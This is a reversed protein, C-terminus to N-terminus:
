SPAGTDVDIGAAQLRSLVPELEKSFRQWRGVSDRHIAQRVQVASASTTSEESDHFNLCDEEFSLDCYDLMNKISAASSTVLEEYRVTHMVGPIVTHWHTMLQEYAILYEALEVLDYSYPYAQDFLTKYIAYCTDMPQRRVHIIKAKPLALHILGAYLFNLPMKDIFYAKGARMPRTSEIYTEGLTEFDIDRSQRVLDAGTAPAGSTRRALAALLVSFDGLEGAAKVVPHRGLIREVLTTGTRPLGIVFIPSADTFGATGRGFVSADYTNRITVMTAVDRQVDYQIHRRRLDAGEKLYRFSEADRDLDELEKALAYCIAVQRRPESAVRGLTKKLGEVHNSVANQRRLGSRLAWADTDDPDIAIARDLSQEAEDLRGTFRLVTGLNYHHAAVGPEAAAAAAYHRAAEAQMGIRALFLGTASSLQATAHDRAAVVEGITRAERRQKLMAHCTGKQLLWETVDPELAVALDIARLAAAPDGMRVALHSALHWGAASRPHERTFIDVATVAENFKEQQMLALIDRLREAARREDSEM